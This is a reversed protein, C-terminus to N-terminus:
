EDTVSAMIPKMVCCCVKKFSVFDVGSLATAMRAAYLGTIWNGQGLGQKNKAHDICDMTFNLFASPVPNTGDITSSLTINRLLQCLKGQGKNWFM